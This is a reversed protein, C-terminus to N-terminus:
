GDAMSFWYGGDRTEKLAKSRAFLEMTLSINWYSPRVNVFPSPPELHFLLTALIPLLIPFFPPQWRSRTVRRVKLKGTPKEFVEERSRSHEEVISPTAVFRAVPPHAVAHFLFFLSSSPPPRHHLPHYPAPYFCLEINWPFYYGRPHRHYFKAPYNTGAMQPSLNPFPHATIHGKHETCLAVARTSISTLVRRLSSPHQPHM